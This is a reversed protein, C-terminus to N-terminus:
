GKTDASKSAFTDEADTWVPMAWENMGWSVCAGLTPARLVSVSYTNWRHTRVLPRVCVSM